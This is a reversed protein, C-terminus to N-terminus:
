AGELWALTKASLGSLEPPNRKLDAEWAARETDSLPPRLGLGARAAESLEGGCAAELKAIRASLGRAM